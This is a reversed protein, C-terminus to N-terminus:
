PDRHIIYISKICNHLGKQKYSFYGWFCSNCCITSPVIHVNKSPLSWWYIPLFALRFNPTTRPEILSWRICAIDWIFLIHRGSQLFLKLYRCCGIDPMTTNLEGIPFCYDEMSGIRHKMVQLCCWWICPPICRHTHIIEKTNSLRLGGPRLAIYQTPFCYSGNHKNRYTEKRMMQFVPCLTHM